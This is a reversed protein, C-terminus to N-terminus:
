ERFAEAVQKVHGNMKLSGEVQLDCSSQSLLYVSSSTEAVINRKKPLTLNLCPIISLWVSLRRAIILRV